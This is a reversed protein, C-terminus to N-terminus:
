DKEVAGLPVRIADLTADVQAQTLVPRDGTKPAAVWFSGRKEITVDACVPELEIRGDVVRVELATGPTLQASRRIAKPLVVRGASDM